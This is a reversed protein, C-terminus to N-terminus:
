IPSNPIECHKDSFIVIHDQFVVLLDCVEKGDGAKKAHGQDRFIGSYSWLSLFSHNCLQSLYKEAATIGQYRPIVKSKSIVQENMRSRLKGKRHNKYQCMAFRANLLRSAASTMSRRPPSRSTGLCTESNM